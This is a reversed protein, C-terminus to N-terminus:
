IHFGAFVTVALVSIGVTVVTIVVNIILAALSQPAHFHGRRAKVTGIISLVLSAVMMAQGIYGFPLSTTILSVISLGIASVIGGVLLWLAAIGLTDRPETSFRGAARREIGVWERGDWYRVAAEPATDVRYWGPTTAPSVPSAPTKSDM